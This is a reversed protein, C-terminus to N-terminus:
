RSADRARVFESWLTQDLTVLHASIRRREQDLDNLEQEGYAVSTLNPQRKRMEGLMEIKKIRWEVTMISQKVEMHALEVLSHALGYDMKVADVSKATWHGDPHNGHRQLILGRLKEAGAILDTEWRRNASIEWLDMRPLLQKQHELKELHKQEVSVAQKTQAGIQDDFEYDELLRKKLGDIKSFLFYALLLLLGVIVWEGNTMAAGM